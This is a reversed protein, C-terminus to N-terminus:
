PGAWSFCRVHSSAAETALAAVFGEAPDPLSLVWQSGLGDPSEVLIREASETPAPAVSFSKISSLGRGLSKVVAEKRTWLNFFAADLEEQRFACLASHEQCTFIREAVPLANPFRRVREVDVGLDRGVQVAFVGLEHSGSMNFRLREAADTGVLSPKGNSDYGFRLRSRERKLYGGLITRMGARGVVFRKRDRRLKFSGARALEDPSLVSELDKIRSAPLDLAFAFVHIEGAALELEAPRPSWPFPAVLPSENRVRSRMKRPLTCWSPTQRAGGQASRRHSGTWRAEGRDAPRRASGDSGRM